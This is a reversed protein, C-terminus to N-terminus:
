AGGVVVRDGEELAGQEVPTVQVNGDAALGTTVAVDRTRDGPLEVQVRPRGDASTVVAAVPVTLVASETSGVSIKVTVTTGVLERLGKAATPTLLVPVSGFRGGSRGSVAGSGGGTGGAGGSGGGTDGSGGGTGGSGGPAATALRASEGTATLVASLEAGDGTELTAKMGKRLLGAEKSEVSGTVAFAASTVTAVEGEVADGPRVAAKDLRAPLRPLFVIEGPPVSVGYTRLYEALIAKAGALSRRGNAVKLRLPSTQRAQRLSQEATSVAEQARRVAAAAGALRTERADAVEQDFSALAEEAAQVDQRANSAKMELLRRDDELKAAALAQEATLSAEEATRAGQRLAELRLAEEPTLERLDERELAREAARLDERANGLKLKLPRVDRGADLAKRDAALTEQATRVAQRLTELERRAALDPEQATYGRGGYWRRVAAATSRDFVGTAPAAFGLRRLAAQLQGVDRGRTGPAMTRHMPVRGRLAFVPRGNVEMLVSGERVAGPRPARTVRQTEATGGVVGALFVPLPSGYALTGSVTVTSTLKRRVVPSTVLSPKPPQRLAAEDAPSRLRTGVAWGAGAIVVIGALM